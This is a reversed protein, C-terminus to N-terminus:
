GGGLDELECVYFCYHACEGSGSLGGSHLVVGWCIWVMGNVNHPVSVHAPPAVDARERLHAYSTRM